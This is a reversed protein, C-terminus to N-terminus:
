GTVEDEGIGLCEALHTIGRAEFATDGVQHAWCVTGIAERLNAREWAAGERPDSGYGALFHDALSPARLWENRSLRVLDVLPPRWDFRGLDIVYLEGEHVLWNREQWDGHTPVLTAAPHDHAAIRDRGLREVEPRIRHPGELWRLAKADMAAEHNVDVRSAQAHFAAILEGAQRHLDPDLSHDSDQALEGPLYEVALVNQQLDAHLLRGIRGEWVSSFQERGAVERAIHHNSPGAAKVVVDGGSWRRHEVVTDVLGWSHDAVVEHGPFWDDVRARQGDSLPM